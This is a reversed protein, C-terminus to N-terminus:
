ALDSAPELSRTPLSAEAPKAPAEFSRHAVTSVVITLSSLPMLIAALLPHIHGGLALGAAIVNYLLSLGLNRRVLALTRRAGQVLEVVPELGGRTSFVDAAALSAEAGGQIAIGVDSLTLAAADNVGDGVMFVPGKQREADVFALKDAPSLGGLVAQFTVGLERAVGSVVREADGSAIAVRHGLGVLQEVCARAEPRLVDGLGAAAVAVGDVAIFTASLGRRELGRARADLAKPIKADLAVFSRKGVRVTRGDVVARVGSGLTEEAAVDGSV